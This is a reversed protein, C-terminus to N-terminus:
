NHTRFVPKVPEGVLYKKWGDALAQRYVKLAEEAASLTLKLEEEGHALSVGIWPMLVGRRAMEQVFLTRMPLSVAGDADRTVFNMLVHSGDMDFHDAIGLGRAIGKLGEFLQEGYRWVHGTVDHEKYVQVTEVFAGLAPMEAGHTTSILFVRKAGASRIGGLEMIERRGVLASVAYGNAMAKGFTSLDPEVGYYTQAGRLHWRFGTIMEDLIFLAGHRHALERAQVLFNRGHEPCIRCNANGNGLKACQKPCPGVLTAPETIVCAIDTPHEDFLKALSAIDGYDFLLSLAAHEAPVGRRVNTTGIFWDDYSFFPHQRPICVYRRGTHARALKVAATTVTSGNKAFKVMDASPILDIMTEAAELEVISPRTLNVGNEIQRIAAANIRANAYGVTVARLAMGYDLYRRGDADWVYAGEGRTLISPAIAPFQDDGRSYTHAGGPIVSHLRDSYNVNSRDSMIVETPAAKDAANSTLGRSKQVVINASWNNASM